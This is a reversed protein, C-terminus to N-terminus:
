CINQKNEYIINKIEEINKDSSFLETAYNSEIKGGYIEEYINEIQFYRENKFVLKAYWLSSYHLKSLKEGYIISYHNDIKTRIVNQNDFPSIIHKEDGEKFDYILLSENIKGINISSGDSVGNINSDLFTEGLIAPSTVCLVHDGYNENEINYLCKNICSKLIETNKITAIFANYMNKPIMDRVYVEKYNLIIDDVNLLPSMSFDMYVGGYKYLILYRFLDAQYAKPILKFYADIYRKDYNDKIFNFRDNDDFYFLTYAPNQEIIDNYLNVIDIPLDSKVFSGTKIIIKPIEISNIFNYYKFDEYSKIM